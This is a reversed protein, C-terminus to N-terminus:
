EIHQGLTQDDADKKLDRITNLYNLSKYFLSLNLLSQIEVRADVSM